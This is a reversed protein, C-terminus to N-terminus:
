RVPFLETILSGAPQWDVSRRSWTGQQWADSQVLVEEWWGASDARSDVLLVRTEGDARQAVYALVADLRQGDDVVIAVQRPGFYALYLGLLDGSRVLMLDGPQTEVMVREAVGYVQNRARDHRPLVEFGANAVAVLTVATALGLVWGWSASRRAGAVLAVLLWWAALVQVWFSVDGPVWYFSFAAYLGTWVALIGLPRRQAPWLRGRWRWAMLLPVAAVVLAALYTFAFVVRSASGAQGLFDRTTGALSLGPYLLLGRLFAYVGHPLSFWTPEGYASGGSLAAVLRGWDGETWAILFIALAPLATAAVTVGYRIAQRRWDSTGPWEDLWLGALVVPVLFAGTLYTLIALTTGLGLLVAYGAWQRRRAPVALLGWLVLLTAALPITVFEADVSLMWIGGSVAFGMGMAVATGASRSLQWAMSAMLGASLAGGLANLVQLPLLARGTWGALRWLQVFLWGLPHLLPHYPDLLYAPEGAEITLAYGISDGTYHHSLTALYLLLAAAMVAAPALWSPRSLSPTQVVSVLGGALRDNRLRHIWYNRM